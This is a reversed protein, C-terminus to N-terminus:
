WKSNSDLHTLSLAVSFLTTIVLTEPHTPFISLYHDFTCVYRLTLLNPCRIYLMTYMTVLLTIIDLLVTDHLQIKSLSTKFTIIM